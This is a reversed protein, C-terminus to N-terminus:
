RCAPLGVHGVAVEEKMVLQGTPKGKPKEEETPVDVANEEKEIVEDAKQVEKLLVPDKSLAESASGQSRIRGDLGLSVVFDAIPSTM